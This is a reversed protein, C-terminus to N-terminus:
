IGLINKEMEEHKKRKEALYTINENHRSYMMTPTFNQRMFPITLIAEYYMAHQTLCSNLDWIGSPNKTLYRSQLVKSLRKLNIGMVASFSAKEGETIEEFKAMYQSVLEKFHPVDDSPRFTENYFTLLDDLLPELNEPELHLTHSELIKTISEKFTKKVKKTKLKSPM